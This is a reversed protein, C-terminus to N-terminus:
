LHFDIYAIVFQKLKAPTDSSINIYYEAKNFYFVTETTYCRYCIDGETGVSTPRKFFYGTADGSEGIVDIEIRENTQISLVLVLKKMLAKDQLDSEAIRLGNKAAILLMAHSLKKDTLIAQSEPLSFSM